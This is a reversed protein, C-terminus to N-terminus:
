KAVISKIDNLSKSYRKKFTRLMIVCKLLYYVISVIAGVLILKYFNGYFLSYGSILFLTFLSLTLIEISHLIMRNENTKYSIEFMIVTGLILMVSLVRLITLYVETLINEEGIYLLFMYILIVLLIVINILCKGYIKKKENAPLKKKNKIEEELKEFDKRKM